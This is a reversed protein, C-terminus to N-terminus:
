CPSVQLLRRKYGTGTDAHRNGPPLNDGIWEDEAECNRLSLRSLRDCAPEQQQVHDADRLSSVDKWVMICTSSENISPFFNWLLLALSHLVHSHKNKRRNGSISPCVNKARLRTECAFCSSNCPFCSFSLGPKPSTYSNLQTCISTTLRKSLSSTHDHSGRFQSSLLFSSIICCCFRPKTHESRTVRFLPFLSNPQSALIGSEDVRLVSLIYLRFYGRLTRAAAPMERSDDPQCCSPFCVHIRDRMQNCVFVQSVPNTLLGARRSLSLTKM